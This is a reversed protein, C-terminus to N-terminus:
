RRRWITTQALRGGASREFDFGAAGLESRLAADSVRDPDGWSETISLRGGRRLIRRFEAIARSRDAIEGLVTVVVVVDASADSLPLAAADAALAATGHIGARELRRTAQQVMEPQLDVVTLGGVPVAAALAASFYGPGCGIEVVREDHRLGIRRCLEAPSLILRRLGLTLLWSYKV